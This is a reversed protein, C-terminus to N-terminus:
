TRSFWCVAGSGFMIAGGSVSRRDNTDGAYSSDASAFLELGLGRRCNIGLTTTGRLYLLIM